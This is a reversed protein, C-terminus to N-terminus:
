YAALAPSMDTFIFDFLLVYRLGSLGVASQGSGRSIKAEKLQKNQNELRLSIKICGSTKTLPLQLGCVTCLLHFFSACISANMWSALWPHKCFYMFYMIVPILFLLKRCFLPTFLTNLRKNLSFMFIHKTGLIFTCIIYFWLHSKAKSRYTVMCSYMQKWIQLLYIFPTCLLTNVVVICHLLSLYYFYEFLTCYFKIKTFHEFPGHSQRQPSAHLGTM